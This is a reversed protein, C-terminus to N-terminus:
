FYNNQQIEEFEEEKKVPYSVGCGTCNYFGSMTKTDQLIHISKTSVCSPCIYHEPEAKYKYVVAEGVTKVLDYQAIKDDWSGYENITSKLSNNEEQLRFLEDRLEFLTDQAEGVKKVAENIKGLSNAEVKLDNFGLFIDKAIKLGSYASAISAIDM